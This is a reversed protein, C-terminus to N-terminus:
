ISQIETAKSNCAAISVADEEDACEAEIVGQMLSEIVELQRKPPFSSHVAQSVKATM